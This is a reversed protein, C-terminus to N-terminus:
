CKACCYTATDEARLNNLQLRATSQGNDRSTTARGKVAAGYATYDGDWSMRVWHMLYSSLTFGSGKCVLSLGAELAQLPKSSPAPPAF